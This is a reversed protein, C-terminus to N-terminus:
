LSMSFMARSSLSVDVLFSPSTSLTEMLSMEIQFAPWPLGFLQVPTVIFSLNSKFENGEKRIGIPLELSMLSIYVRSLQGSESLMDSEDEEISTKSESSSQIL